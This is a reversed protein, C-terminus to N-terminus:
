MLYIFCVIAIMSSFRLQDLKKLSTTPFILFIVFIAIWFPRTLYIADSHTDMDVLERMVLPMYDAIIILYASCTLTYGFAIFLDIWIQLRPAIDDSVIAYSSIHGRYCYCAGVSMLLQFAFTSMFAFVVFLIIGMLWGSENVAFPLALMGAGINANCINIGSSFISAKTQMIFEILSSRRRKTPIMPPHLTEVGMSGTRTGSMTSGLTSNDDQTTTNTTAHNEGADNRRPSRSFAVNAPLETYYNAQPANLLNASDVDSKDSIVSPNPEKVAIHLQESLQKKNDAM